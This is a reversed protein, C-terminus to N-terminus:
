MAGGNFTCGNNRELASNFVEGNNGLPTDGWSAPIM